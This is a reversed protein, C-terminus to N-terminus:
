VASEGASVTEIAARAIIGTCHNARLPCFGYEVARRTVHRSSGRPGESLRKSSRIPMVALSPRMGMPLHHAAEVDQCHSVIRTCDPACQAAHAEEFDRRGSREERGAGTVAIDGPRGRRIIAFDSSTPVPKPGDPIMSPIILCPGTAIAHVAARTARRYTDIFTLRLDKRSYLQRVNPKLRFTPM